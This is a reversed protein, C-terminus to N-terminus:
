NTNDTTNVGWWQSLFTPFPSVHSSLARISTLLVISCLCSRHWPTSHASAQAGAQARPESTAVGLPMMWPQLHGLELQDSAIVALQLNSDCSVIISLSPESLLSRSSSRITCTSAHARQANAFGSARHSAPLARVCASASIVVSSRDAGSELACSSERPQM